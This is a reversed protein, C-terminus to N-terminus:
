WSGFKMLNESGAERASRKVVELGVEDFIDYGWRKSSDNFRKNRELNNLKEVAERPLENVQLNSNIRSETVSKPLVITGRQVAWSVLLQGPNMDFDLEKCIDAVVPDDVAKIEGTQNNGLPSYATVLIGKSECFSKLSPQQLYPHAEIQNVAPTIESTRLLEKLKQENFNSVGIARAKGTKVLQEMAKWTKSYHTDSLQIVGTADLPIWKEGRAFARDLTLWCPFIM